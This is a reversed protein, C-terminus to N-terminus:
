RETKFIQHQGNVVWPEAQPGAAVQVALGPFGQWQAIANAPPSGDGGPQEDWVMTPFGSPNNRFNQGLSWAYGGAGIGIDHGVADGPLQSWSGNVTSTSYRFIHGASNTVWPIGQEGVSITVALGNANEHVWRTGNFKFISGDPVGGCGIVWAAAPKANICPQSGCLPDIGVGIDIACGNGPLLQWFGTFPNNSSRQWITGDTAIVWPVGDPGVAIRRARGGASELIFGDAGDWKWISNDLGIVWVSGDMGVGIDLALGNLQKWRDYLLSIGVKDDLTLTRKAVGSATVGFMVAGWTSTGLSSHALGLAHGLEHTMVTKFDVMGAPVTTSAGTYWPMRSNLVVNVTSSFWNPADTQGLVGDDLDDMRIQITGDGGTEIPNLTTASAWVAFSEHIRAEAELINPIGAFAGTLISYTFSSDQTFGRTDFKDASDLRALGDPTGCRPSKLSDRTAQDVVGTEPLGYNKQLKRVAVQTHEDFRAADKPAESVIPRWAPYKQALVDNPFYGYRTLYGHLARVQQGSSGVRLDQNISDVAPPETGSGSDTPTGECAGLGLVTSFLVCKMARYRM